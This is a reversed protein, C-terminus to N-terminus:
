DCVIEVRCESLDCLAERAEESTARSRWWAGLDSDRSTDLGQRLAAEQLLKRVAKEAQPIGDIYYEM